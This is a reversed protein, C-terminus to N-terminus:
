NGRPRFAALQCPRAEQGSSNGVVIVTINNVIRLQRDASAVRYAVLHDLGGSGRRLATCAYSGRGDCDAEDEQRDQQQEAVLLQGVSGARQAPGQADELALHFPHLVVVHVVLRGM